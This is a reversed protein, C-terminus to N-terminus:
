EFPNLVPVGTQRFDAANRTVVTLGHVRATAAMLRDVVPLTNRASLRGWEIAVVETVLLVRDAFDLRL